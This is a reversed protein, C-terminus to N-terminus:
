IAEGCFEVREWYGPVPLDIERGDVIAVSRVWVAKDGLCRGLAEVWLLLFAIVAGVFVWM